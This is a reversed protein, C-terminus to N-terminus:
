RQYEKRINDVEWDRMFRRVSGNIHEINEINPYYYMFKGEREVNVLKARLLNNLYLSVQSQSMRTRVMVDTVCLPEGSLLLTRLIFLSVGRLLSLKFAAKKVKQLDRAAEVKYM